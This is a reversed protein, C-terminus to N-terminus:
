PGDGGPLRRLRFSRRFGFPRWVGRPEGLFPLRFGAAPLMEVQWPSGGFFRFSLMTDSDIRLDRFTGTSNPWLLTARDVLRFQRDLLSLHLGEEFPVDDTTFLLWGTATEVATELGRGPVLVGVAKGDRFVACESPANARAPEAPVVSFEEIVRM